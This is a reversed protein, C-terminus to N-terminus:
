HAAHAAAVDAFGLTEAAEALTRRVDSLNAALEAGSTETSYAHAREIARALEDALRPDRERLAAHVEHGRDHVAIFFRDAGGQVDGTRALAIAEDLAALASGVEQESPLAAAHAAGHAGGEAHSGDAGWDMLSAATLPMVVLATIALAGWFRVPSLHATKDARRLLVLCGVVVLAQLSTALGDAFAIDEVEGSAPGAPIGATRTLAWVAIVAANGAAGTWAVWGAVGTVARLAWITQLWAVVAFFVGYLWWEDFHAGLVAFHVAAAAVSALAAALSLLLELSYGSGGRAEVRIAM